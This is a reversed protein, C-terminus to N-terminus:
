GKRQCSNQFLDFRSGSASQMTLCAEPSVPGLISCLYRLRLSSSPFRELLFWTMRSLSAFDSFLPLIFACASTCTAYRQLSHRRRHEIFSSYSHKQYRHKLALSGHFHRRRPRFSAVIWNDLIRMLQNGVSGAGMRSQAPLLAMRGIWSRTKWLSAILHPPYM